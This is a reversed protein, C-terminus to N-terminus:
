LFMQGYAALLCEFADRLMQFLILTSPLEPFFYRHCTQRAVVRHHQM